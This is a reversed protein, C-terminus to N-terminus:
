VRIIPLCLSPMSVQKITIYNNKYDRTVTVLPYGDFNLWPEMIKKFNMDSPLFEPEDNEITTTLVDWLQDLNSYGFQAKNLYNHLSLQFIKPSM